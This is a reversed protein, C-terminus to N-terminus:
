LKGLFLVNNEKMIILRCTTIQFFYFKMLVRMILYRGNKDEITDLVEVALSPHFLIAVGKSNTNGHACYLEGKWYKRWKEMLFEDSHTEQLFTVGKSNNRLWDLVAKSKQKGGLGRINLTVFNM